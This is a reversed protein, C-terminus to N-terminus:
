RAQAQGDLLRRKVRTDRTLTCGAARATGALLFEDTAGSRGRLRRRDLKLIRKLHAFLM